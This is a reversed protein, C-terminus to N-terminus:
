IQLGVSMNRFGFKSSLEGFYKKVDAVTNEQSIFDHLFLKEIAPLLSLHRCRRIVTWAHTRSQGPGDQSISSTNMPKVGTWCFAASDANRAPHKPKRAVDASYILPRILQLTLYFFDLSFSAGSLFPSSIPRILLFLSYRSVSNRLSIAGSLLYHSCVPNPNISSNSV